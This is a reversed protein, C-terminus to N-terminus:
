ISSRTSQISAQLGAVIRGVEEAQSLLNRFQGEQLYGIDAAVYLQTRLEACSGKSISLFQRFEKPGGREYGEAINSM